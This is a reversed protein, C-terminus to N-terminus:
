QWGPLKAESAALYWFYPRMLIAVFSRREFVARGGPSFCGWQSEHLCTSALRAEGMQTLFAAVRALGPLRSVKMQWRLIMSGILFGKRTFTPITDKRREVVLPLVLGPCDELIYKDQVVKTLAM